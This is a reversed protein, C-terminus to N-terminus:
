AQESLLDEVLRRRQAGDLAEYSPAWDTSMGAKWDRFWTPEPRKTIHRM